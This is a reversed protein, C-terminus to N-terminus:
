PAEMPFVKAFYGQADLKKKLAEAEALSKSRGVRIRCLKKGSLMCLVSYVDYGKGKLESIFKEANAYNVFAGVQVTYFEENVSLRRADRAEFSLPFEKQLKDLYKKAEEKKDGLKLNVEALRFYLTALRKKSPGSSLFDNYIKLAEKYNEQLFEVDGLGMYADEFYAAGKYKEVIVKFNKKASLFDFLNAYSAGVLYNAEALLEPDQPHNNIVSSCEDIAQVYQHQLFLSKAKKLPDEARAESAFIFLFTIFFLISRSFRDKRM